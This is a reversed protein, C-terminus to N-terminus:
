SPDEGPICCEPHDASVSRLLVLGAGAESARHLAGVLTALSAAAALNAM